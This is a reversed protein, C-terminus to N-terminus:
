PEADGAERARAAAAQVELELAIRALQTAMADDSLSEMEGAVHMEMRDPPRIGGQAYSLEIAKVTIMDEKSPKMAVSVLRRTLTSAMSGIMAQVEAAIAQQRAALEQAVHPLRVVEYARTPGWGALKGAEVISVPRLVPKDNEDPETVGYSLLDVFAKEKRSLKTPGAVAAAEPSRPGKRGPGRKGQGVVPLAISPEAEKM